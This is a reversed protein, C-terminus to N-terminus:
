TGKHEQETEENWIKTWKILQLSRYKAWYRGECNQHVLPSTKWYENLIGRTEAFKELAIKMVKRIRLIKKGSFQRGM